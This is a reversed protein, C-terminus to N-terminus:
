LNFREKFGEIGQLGGTHIMLISKGKSFINEAVMDFIGYLLKSTYIPDLPIQYQRKFDNMFQILEGDFKAYGGFHYDPVIQWNSYTKGNYEQLHKNITREMWNGKLAPFVLVHSEGDLGAILGAATSGTGASICVYNPLTPFQKKIEAAMESSGKIALANSGGEPIVYTDDGFQEAFDDRFEQSRYDARSCFHLEVDNAKLYRLTYGLTSPAEGRILAVTKFGYRKGAAALAYLHNSYAGGYSILTNKNNKQAELINYKLKRWKNGSIERDILDDRKIFIKLNYVDSLKSKIPQVLSREIEDHLPQFKNM